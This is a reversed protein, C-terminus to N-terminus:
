AAVKKLRAQNFTTLTDTIDPMEARITQAKLKQLSTLVSKTAAAQTDYFKNLWAITQGLALQYVQQQRHLAAWGAQQLSLAMNEDLVQRTGPALLPRIPKDNHRVIVIKQLQQWSNDLAGRWGKRTTTTEKAATPAAAAPKYKGALPLQPIEKSLAQLQSLLGVRDIKPISDLETLNSAIKQRVPNFSPDGTEQLRKDAAKLLSKASAPNLQFQLNINALSLYYDVEDLVWDKGTVKKQKALVVTDQKLDAVQQSLTSVAQSLTQLQDSVPKIASGRQESMENLRKTFKENQQHQYSFKFPSVLFVSLGLAALAFLLAITAMFSRPAKPAATKKETTKEVTQQKDTM